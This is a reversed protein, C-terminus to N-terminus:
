AYPGYTFMERRKRLGLHHEGTVPMETGDALEIVTRQRVVRGNRGFTIDDAIRGAVIAEVMAALKDGLPLETRLFEYRSQRAGSGTLVYADGGIPLLVEVAAADERTPTITMTLLEDLPKGRRNRGRVVEEELAYSDAPLEVLISRIAAACVEIGPDDRVSRAV